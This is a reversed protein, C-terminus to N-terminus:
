SKKLVFYLIAVSAVGGIVLLILNSPPPVEGGVSIQSEMSVSALGAIGVFQATIWHSGTTTVLMNYGWTGDTATPVSGIISGGGAAGDLLINITLSGLGAGTDTRTLKGSIAFTQNIYASSPVTLTLSTPILFAIPVASSVCSIYSVSGAYYMRYFLTIGATGTMPTSLSYTGPTSGGVTTVVSVGANAWDSLGDPSVQLLLTEGGLGASTDTRILKGSLTATFPSVGQNPTIGLTVSTPIAALISITTAAQAGQYGPM